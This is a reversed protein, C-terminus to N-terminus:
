HNSMWRPWTGPVPQPPEAKLATQASYPFWPPVLLSASPDPQGVSRTRSSKREPLGRIEHTYYAGSPSESRPCSHGRQSLGESGHGEADM